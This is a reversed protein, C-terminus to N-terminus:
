DNRGDSVEETAEGAGKKRPGTHEYLGSRELGDLDAPNDADVKGRYHDFEVDTLDRGPVGSLPAKGKKEGVWIWM